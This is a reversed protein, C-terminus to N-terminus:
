SRSSSPRPEEGLQFVEVEPLLRLRVLPAELPRSPRAITATAPGSPRLHAPLASRAPLPALARPPRVRAPSGRQPPRSQLSAQPLGFHPRPRATVRAVLARLSSRPALGM